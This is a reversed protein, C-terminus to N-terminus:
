SKYDLVFASAINFDKSNSLTRQDSPRLDTPDASNGFNSVVLEFSCTRM